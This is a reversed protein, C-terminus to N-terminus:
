AGKRHKFRSLGDMVLKIVGFTMLMETAIAAGVLYKNTNKLNFIKEAWKDNRLVYKAGGAFVNKYDKAHSAICNEATKLFSDARLNRDFAESAISTAAVLPATLLAWNTNYRKENQPVKGQFNVNNQISM